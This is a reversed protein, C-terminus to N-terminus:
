PHIVSLLFFGELLKFNTLDIKVVKHSAKFLKIFSELMYLLLTYWYPVKVSIQSGTQIDWFLEFIPTFM